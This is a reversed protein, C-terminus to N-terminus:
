SPHDRFRFLRAPKTGTSRRGPAEELLGDDLMRRFRRRFNGPDFRTKLIVEHVTRLEQITFSDPVLEFAVPTYDLKGRLRAVSLDLIERHDFALELRDLEALSHWRTELVRKGARVQPVLDPRVLAFYAVSIVRTRPDRGARGFTYLQELYVQKASLDTEESLIRAAAADLDEGKDDVADGVRVFGGPLAWFGKFPSEERRVLLGKLDRDVLTLIVVDVTVSPRPYQIKRYQRLFEQEEPTLRPDEAGHNLNQDSM